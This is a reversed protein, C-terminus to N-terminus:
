EETCYPLLQTRIEAPIEVSTPAENTQIWCCVSTMKGEALLRQDHSIRFAFTISSRGLRTISVQITLKEECRAPSRYDCSVSVRPFSITKGDIETYVSLGLNRYFEHEATEMYHFFSAFHMIGAMDTDHFEVHRETLYTKSM